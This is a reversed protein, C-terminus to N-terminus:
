KHDHPNKESASDSAVKCGMSFGSRFGFHRQRMEDFAKVVEQARQVEKDVLAKQEQTLVYINGDRDRYESSM